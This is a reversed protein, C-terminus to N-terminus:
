AKSFFNMGFEDMLWSFVSGSTTVSDEQNKVVAKSELEKNTQSKSNNDPQNKPSEPEDKPILPVRMDLLEFETVHKYKKKSVQGDDNEAKSKESQTMAPLAAKAVTKDLPKKVIPLHSFTNYSKSTFATQTANLSM